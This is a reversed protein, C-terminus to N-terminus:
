GDHLMQKAGCKSCIGCTQYKHKPQVVYFTKNGCECVVYGDEDNKFAKWRLRSWQYPQKKRPM